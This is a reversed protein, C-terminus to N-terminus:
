AAKPLPAEAQEAWSFFAIHCGGIDCVFLDAGWHTRKVESLVKMRHRRVIEVTRQVDEVEVIVDAPAPPQGHYFELVGDGAILPVGRSRHDNWGDGDTFGLELLVARVRDLENHQAVIRPVVVSRIM